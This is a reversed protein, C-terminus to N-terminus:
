IFFSLYGGNISLTAAVLLPYFFFARNYSNEPRLVLTRVILFLLATLVASFIPSIFWSVVIASIGKVFPFVDTAEHWVVCDSGRYTLAMGVIGGVTSHTTSVPLELFSAILVWMGTSYVVCMMGYMFIPPNDEFCSI